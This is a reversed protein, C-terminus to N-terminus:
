RIRKTEKRTAEALAREEARYGSLLNRLGYNGEHCAYEFIMGDARPMLLVARWPRTFTVPDDITVEYAVTDADVRTFRETLHLADSSRRSSTMDKFNTTDVVLTDGEWHGRSDGLWQRITPPIHPRGDLPIIRAEHIMEHFVVVHDPTQIIQVNSNSGGVLRPLGGVGLICREFLGRDEPGDAPHLRRREIRAADTKRAAPTLAPIKGDPPDVILSTRRGRSRPAKDHWFQNFAFRPDASADVAPAEGDLAAAEQETLFEKGALEKPRELPTNSRGEWIGQLDPDGWLTRPTATRAGSAARAPAQDAVQIAALSVVAIFGALVFPTLSSKNM